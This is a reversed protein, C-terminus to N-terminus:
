GAAIGVVGAMVLVVGAGQTPRVRESLVTRALAITVVPYLSSCESAVSVHGETAALAFLANASLDLM